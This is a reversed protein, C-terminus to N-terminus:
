QGALRFAQPPPPARGAVRRACSLEGVGARVGTKAEAPIAAGQADSRASPRM